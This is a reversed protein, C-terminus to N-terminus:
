FCRKAIVYFHNKM